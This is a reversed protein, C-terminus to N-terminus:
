KEYKDGNELTSHNICGFDCSIGILRKGLLDFETNNNNCVSGDGSTDFYSCHACTLDVVNQPESKNIIELSNIIISKWHENAAKQAADLSSYHAICDIDFYLSFNGNQTLVIGYFQSNWYGDINDIWEIPKIKIKSLELDQM